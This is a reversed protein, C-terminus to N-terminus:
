MTEIPKIQEDTHIQIGVLLFSQSTMRVIVPNFLPNSLEPDYDIKSHKLRAVPLARVVSSDELWDSIEL